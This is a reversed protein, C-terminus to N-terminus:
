SKPEGDSFAEENNRNDAETTGFEHRSISQKHHTTKEGEFRVHKAPDGYYRAPLANSREEGGVKDQVLVGLGKAETIRRQATRETLDFASMLRSKIEARTCGRGLLHHAFLLADGWTQGPRMYHEQATARILKKFQEKSTQDAVTRDVQLLMEVFINPHM